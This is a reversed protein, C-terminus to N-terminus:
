NVHCCTIVTNGVQFLDLLSIAMIIAALLRSLKNNGLYQELTDLGHAALYALALTTIIILSQPLLSAVLAAVTSSTALFATIIGAGVWKKTRSFRALAGLTALGIVPIGLYSGFHHWAASSEVKSSYPMQNTDLFIDRLSATDTIPAGAQWAIGLIAAAALAAISMKTIKKQSQQWLLIVLPLSAACLATLSNENSAKLAFWSSFAFAHAGFLIAITSLQQHRLVLIMGFLAVAHILVQTLPWSANPPLSWLFAFPLALSYILFGITSVRRKAPVLMGIAIIVLIGALQKASPPAVSASLQYGPIKTQQIDDISFRVHQLAEAVTEETQAVDIQQLRIKQDLEPPITLTIRLPLKPYLTLPPDLRAHSADNPNIHSTLIASTGKINDAQIIEFTLVSNPLQSLSRLHVGVSALHPPFTPVDIHYKKNTELILGQSIGEAPAFLVFVQSVHVRYLLLAAVLLLTSGAIRVLINKMIVKTYIHRCATLRIAFAYTAACHTTSVGTALLSSLHSVLKGAPMGM